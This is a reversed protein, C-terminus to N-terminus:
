RRNGQIEDVGTNSITYITASWRPHCKAPQSDTQRDTQRGLQSAPESTCYDVAVLSRM